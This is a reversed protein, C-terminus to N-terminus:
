GPDPTRTIQAFIVSDRYNWIDYTVTYHDPGGLNRREKYCGQNGTDASTIDASHPPAPSTTSYEGPLHLAGRSRAHVLISDLVDGTIQDDLREYNTPLNHKREPMADLKGRRTAPAHRYTIFGSAATAVPESSFTRLVRGKWDETVAQWDAASLFHCWPVPPNSGPLRLPKSGAWCAVEVHCLGLSKIIELAPLLDTDGSFLVLADYHKRFALHMLDVAIAVDIGKEQPPLNPWGRYNLQRRIVQVRRDRTWQAKQADNGAALTAQHNPDPRGRYVRIATATSPRKRKGAILDALRAPDPVCRYPESGGGHLAHGVLHVNQFDIFVAISEAM